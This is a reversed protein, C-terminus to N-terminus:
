KKYHRIKWEINQLRVGISYLINWLIGDRKDIWNWFTRSNDGYFYTM